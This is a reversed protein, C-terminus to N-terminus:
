KRLSLSYKSLKVRQLLHNYYSICVKEDMQLYLKSMNKELKKKEANSMSSVQGGTEPINLQQMDIIDSKRNDSTKTAQEEVPVSDGPLLNFFTLKIRQSSHFLVQHIM